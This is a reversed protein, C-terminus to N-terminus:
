AAEKGADDALEKEDDYGQLWNARDDDGPQYQCDSRPKGDRFAKAGQEYPGAPVVELKPGTIRLAERLANLRSDATVDTESDDGGVTVIYFPSQGEGPEARENLAYGRDALAAELAQEDDGLSLTAQRDEETIRVVHVVEKTDLRVLTKYEPHRIWQRTTADIGSVEFVWRCRVEKKEGGAKIIDCRKSIRDKLSKITATFGATATKKAAEEAELDKQLTAVSKALESRDHDCHAVILSETQYSEPWQWSSEPPPPLEAAQAEGIAPQEPPSAAPEDLHDEVPTTEKKKRKTPM